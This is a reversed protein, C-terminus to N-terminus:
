CLMLRDALTTYVCQIAVELQIASQTSLVQEIPKMKM